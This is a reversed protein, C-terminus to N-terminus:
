SPADFWRQAGEVLQGLANGDVLMHNVQVGVPVMLRGDRRAYKGFAVQPETGTSSDYAHTFSTFPVKPLATFWVGNRHEPDELEVGQRAAASTEVACANFTAVDRHYEYSAFTFLGGPAPEVLSPHIEDYLVLQGDLLRYRFDDIERMARTVFYSLNLYLPYRRADAFSKLSTMDLHFTTAYFPNRYKSFFDFVPQRYYSEVVRYTNNM